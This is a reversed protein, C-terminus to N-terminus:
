GRGRGKFASRLWGGGGLRAFRGLRRGAGRLSPASPAPMVCRTKGRPAQRRSEARRRRPRREPRHRTVCLYTLPRRARRDRPAPAAAATAALRRPDRASPGDGGGGKGRAAHPQRREWLRGGAAEEEDAAAARSTTRPRAPSLIGGDLDRM